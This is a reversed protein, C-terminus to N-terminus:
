GTSCQDENEDVPKNIVTFEPPEVTTVVLRSLFLQGLEYREEETLGTTM